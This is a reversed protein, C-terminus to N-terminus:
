AVIAFRFVSKSHTQAVLFRAILPQKLTGTKNYQHCFVLYFLFSFPKTDFEKVLPMGNTRLIATKSRHKQLFNLNLNKEERSHSFLLTESKGYINALQM